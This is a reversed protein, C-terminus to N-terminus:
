LSGQLEVQQSQWHGTVKVRFGNEASVAECRSAKFGQLGNAPNALAELTLNQIILAANPSQNKGLQSLARNGVGRRKVRSTLNTTLIKRFRCSLAELGTVMRGTDPHIGIM